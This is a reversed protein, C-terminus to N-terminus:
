KEKGGQKVRSKKKSMPSVQYNPTGRGRGPCSKGKKKEEWPDSMLEERGGRQEGKPKSTKERTHHCQGSNGEKERKKKKKKKFRVKSLYPLIGGGKRERSHSRLANERKKGISTKIKKVEIDRPWSFKREFAVPCCYKPDCAGGHVWDWREERIPLAVARGGRSLHAGLGGDGKADDTPGAGGKKSERSPSDGVCL